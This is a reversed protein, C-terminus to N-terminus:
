SDVPAGGESTRKEVFAQIEDFMAVDMPPPEFEKIIKKWITNARQTATLSGNETWQGYNSWDSVLPEYFASQYRQMTHECGEVIIISGIVFIQKWFEHLEM